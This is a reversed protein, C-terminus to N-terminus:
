VVDDYLPCFKWEQVQYKLATYLIWPHTSVTTNCNQVIHLNSDIYIYVGIYMYSLIINM